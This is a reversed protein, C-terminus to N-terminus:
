SDFNTQMGSGALIYNYLYMQMKELTYIRDRAQIYKRHNETSISSSKFIANMETKLEDLETILQLREQAEELLRTPNKNMIKSCDITNRRFKKAM